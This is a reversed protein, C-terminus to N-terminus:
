RTSELALEIARATFGLDERADGGGLAKPSELRALQDPYLPLPIVRSAAGLVSVALRPIRILRSKMGFAHGVRGVFEDVTM